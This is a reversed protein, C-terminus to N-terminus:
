RYEQPRDQLLTQFARKSVRDAIICAMEFFEIPHLLKSKKAHVPKLSYEPEIKSLNNTPSPHNEIKVTVPTKELPRASERQKNLAIASVSIIVVVIFLWRLQKKLFMNPPIEEDM